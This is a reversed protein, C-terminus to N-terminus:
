AGAPPAAAADDGGADGDRRGPSHPLVLSGPRIRPATTSDIM